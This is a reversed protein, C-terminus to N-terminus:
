PQRKKIVVLMNRGRRNEICYGHRYAISVCRLVSDAVLSLRRLAPTLEGIAGMASRQIDCIKM